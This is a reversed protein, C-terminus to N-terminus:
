LVETLCHVSQVVLYATAPFLVSFRGLDANQKEQKFNCIFLGNESSWRYTYLYLCHLDINLM